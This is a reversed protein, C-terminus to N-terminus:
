VNFMKIDPQKSYLYFLSIIIDFSTERFILLIHPFRRRLIYMKHIYFDNEEIGPLANIHSM